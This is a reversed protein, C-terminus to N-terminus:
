RALRGYRGRYYLLPEGAGAGAAVVEGVFITHDGGEHRAHVRCEVWALAGELLPAGTVGTRHPVERFKAAADSEAFRRSVWEMESSLFNIAFIGSEHLAAYTDASHEVCVLVLPPELSVSAVASATLGRPEGAADTTTTITVGTAWHALVRRFEAPEIAMTM